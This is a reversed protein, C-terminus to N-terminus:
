RSFGRDCWAANCSRQCLNNLPRLALFGQYKEHFSHQVIEMCVGNFGMVGSPTQVIVM